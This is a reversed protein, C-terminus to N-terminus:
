ARKATEEGIPIWGRYGKGRPNRLLSETLVRQGEGTITYLKRRRAGQTKGPLSIRATVLKKKVLKEFILYLQPLATTECDEDLAIFVSTGYAEGNQRNIVQLVALQKGGIVDM